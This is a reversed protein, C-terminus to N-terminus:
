TKEAPDQPPLTFSTYFQHLAPLYFNVQLRKIESNGRLIENHAADLRVAPVM